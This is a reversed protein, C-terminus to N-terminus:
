QTSLLRDITATDIRDRATLLQEKITRNARNQRYAADLHEPTTDSNARADRYARMDKWCKEAHDALQRRINISETLDISPTTM